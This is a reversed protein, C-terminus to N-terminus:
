ESGARRGRGMAVAIVCAGLALGSRWGGVADEARTNGATNVGSSLTTRMVVLLFSLMRGKGMGKRRVKGVGKRRGKGEFGGRM